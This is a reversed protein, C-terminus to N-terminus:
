ERKLPKFFESQKYQAVDALITVENRLSSVALILCTEDKVVIEVFSNYRDLGESNKILKDLTIPSM